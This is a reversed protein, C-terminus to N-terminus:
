NGPHGAKYAPLMLVIKQLESVSRCIITDPLGHIEKMSGLGHPMALTLKGGLHQRFEQLGTLLKLDGRSSKELLLRDWVPLDCAMMARIVRTAHRRNLMGLQWASLLDLAMGIAVAEGHRLRNRSMSELRHAAWHGFDLPRSSRREFPDASNSIHEIHLQACRKVVDEMVALSRERIAGAHASLYTIFSEDKIIGVKFAEAVGSIWDRYSLTELFSSDNIVANPPAFTGLFNKIGFRNLGNKVGVGSDNQSLVTTPIRIHRLGRHAISAAFGVADLVAGGGIVIAYSHRCMNYNKFLKLVADTEAAKNKIREGGPVIHIPSALQVRKKNLGVWRRLRGPLDKNKKVVGDDIFFMIRSPDDELVRLLVNDQQAFLDRTFFVPCSFKLSISQMIKM